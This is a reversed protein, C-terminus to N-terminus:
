ISLIDRLDEDSFFEGNGLDTDLARQNTKKELEAIVDELKQLNEVQEKLLTIPSGGFADQITDIAESLRAKWEDDELKKCVTVLVRAASTISYIGKALAFGISFAEDSTQEDLPVDTEMKEIVDELVVNTKQVMEHIVGVLVAAGVANKASDTEM